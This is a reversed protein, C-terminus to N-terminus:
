DLPCPSQFVRRFKVRRNAEEFAFPRRERFGCQAARACRQAIAALRRAADDYAEPSRPERFKGARPVWGRFRIHADVVTGRYIRHRDDYRIRVEADGSYRITM